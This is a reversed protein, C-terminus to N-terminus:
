TRPPNSATFMRVAELYVPNMYELYVTEKRRASIPRNVADDVALLKRVVRMSKKRMEVSGADEFGGFNASPPFASLGSQALMRDENLDKLFISPRKLIPFSLQQQSNVRKLIINVYKTWLFHPNEPFDCAVIMNSLQIVFGRLVSKTAFLKLNVVLNCVIERIGVNVLYSERLKESKLVIEALKMYSISVFSCAEYLFFLETALSLIDGSSILDTFIGIKCLKSLFLLQSSLLEGSIKQTKASSFTSILHSISPFLSSKLATKIDEHDNQFSFDLLICLFKVNQLKNLDNEAQTLFNAQFLALIVEM